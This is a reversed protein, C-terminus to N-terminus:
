RGVSGYDFREVSTDMDKTVRDLCDGVLNQPSLNWKIHVGVEHIDSLSGKVVCM